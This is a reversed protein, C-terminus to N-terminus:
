GWEILEIGMMDDNWTFFCWNQHYIVAISLEASCIREVEGGFFMAAERFFPPPDM